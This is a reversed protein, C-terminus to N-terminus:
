SRKKHEFKRHRSSRQNTNRGPNLATEAAARTRLNINRAERRIFSTLSTHAPLAESIKDIM